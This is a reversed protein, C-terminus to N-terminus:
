GCKMLRHFLRRRMADAVIALGAVRRSGRATEVDVIAAGVLRRYRARARGTIQSVLRHALRAQFFDLRRILIIWRGDVGPSVGQLRALNGVLQGGVDLSYQQIIETTDGSM